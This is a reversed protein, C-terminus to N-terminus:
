RMEDAYAKEPRQERGFVLCVPGTLDAKWVPTAGGEDLGYCFIGSGKIEDLYRSLNTVRVIRALPLAGQAIRGVTETVGCSREKPIILGGVEFCAASRVINGLNQPDFIGDFACLLPRDSAALGKLFLDQDTYSYQDTELCIHAKEGKLQKSLLEGPIIRFSVGQRKAEKIVEESFREYGKEILLRRVSAPHDTLAKLVSQKDTLVPM